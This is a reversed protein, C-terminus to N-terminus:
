ILVYTMKQYGYGDLDGHVSVHGRDHDGHTVM